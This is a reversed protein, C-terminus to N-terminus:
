YTTLNFDIFNVYDRNKPMEEIRWNQKTITYNIILWRFLAPSGLMNVCHDTIYNDSDSLIIKIEKKNSSNSYKFSTTLSVNFYVNSPKNIIYEYVKKAAAAIDDARVMWPLSIYLNLDKVINSDSYEFNFMDEPEGNLYAGMNVMSGCVDSVTEFKNSHIVNPNSYSLPKTEMDILNQYTSFGHFDHRFNTRIGRGNEGYETNKAYNYFEDSKVYNYLEEFRWVESDQIEGTNKNIMTTNNLTKFYPAFIM